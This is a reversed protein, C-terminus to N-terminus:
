GYSRLKREAPKRRDPRDLEDQQMQWLRAFSGGSRLLADPSGDEVIRGDELVVIRDFGAITSLRHAVAVITRRSALAGFARQVAIESKSM